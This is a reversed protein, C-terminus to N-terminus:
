EQPLKKLEDSLQNLLDTMIDAQKDVKELYEKAKQPDMDLSKSALFAFGKVISLPQKIDHVFDKLEIM